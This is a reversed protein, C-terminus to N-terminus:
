FSSDKAELERALRALFLGCAGHGHAFGDWRLHRQYPRLTISTIEGQANVIPSGLNIRPFRARNTENPAIEYSRYLSLLGGAKSSPMSRVGPIERLLSTLLSDYKFDQVAIAERGTQSCSLAYARETSKLLHKAFSLGPVPLADRTRLFIPTNMEEIGLQSAFGTLFDAFAKQRILHNDWVVSIGSSALDEYNKDAVVLRLDAFGGLADFPARVVLITRRDRLVTGQAVISRGDRVAVVYVISDMASIVPNPTPGEPVVGVTVEVWCLVLLALWLPKM